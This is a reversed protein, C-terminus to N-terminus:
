STLPRSAVVRMDHLSASLADVGCGSDLAPWCPLGSSRCRGRTGGCFVREIPIVMAGDGVVTFGAWYFPDAYQPSRSTELQAFRLASAVPEGDALHRYFSRMIIATVRDDVPWMSSVVVPVGASFFAATLGLTGEGTTERGGATECASLVALRSPIALKAIQWARVYPDSPFARAFTLSDANSLFGGDEAGAPLARDSNAANDHEARLQIGSWWPARDIALAHSAIHLVDSGNAVSAFEDAGSINMPCEVHRYRRALDNVEDRAGSLGPVSIAVVRHVLRHENWNKSRELVLVSVSPIQVVDCHKMLIDGHGPLVLLGFPVAAFFGDPCVMIRTSRDLIDAVGSLIDGGLARQANAVRDVAYRRRMSPETSSVIGRFLEIRRALPSGPGPLEVIRLTDRTVAALFSRRRGVCLDLVTEGPLLCQRVDKLAAVRGSFASREENTESHPRRIRDLLSRVKVSQVADFFAQERMERPSSSPHELLVRAAEIVDLSMWQGYVERWEPTSIDGRVRDLSDLAAHFMTAALPVDGADFCFRSELFMGAVLARKQGTALAAKNAGRIYSLAAQSDGVRAYLVALERNVDTLANPYIRRGPAKLYSSLFDIAAGASDSEALVQALTVAVYDLHQVEVSQPHALLRRMIAAASAYRGELQRLTGLQVDITPLQDVANLTECLTRTEDLVAEAADFDGLEGLQNALNCAPVVMAYPSKLERALALAHKLYVSSQNLDGLSTELAALNNAAWMENMRDGTEHATALARQDWAIAAPANGLAHEVRALGILPTVELRKRGGAHFLQLARTYEDRARAQDGMSHFGFGLSSRAWAEDLPSHSRQALLLRRQHCAMADEYHGGSWLIFGKFTVAPMLGTTDRVTETIHIAADIDREAGARGLMLLARGRQTIARGLLVSDGRAEARRAFTSAVHFLSDYNGTYFLTESIAALSDVASRPAVPKQPAAGASALCAVLLLVVLGPAFRRIHGPPCTM